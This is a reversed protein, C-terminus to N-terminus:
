EILNLKDETNLYLVNSGLMFVKKCFCSVVGDVPHVIEVNVYSGLPADTYTIIGDKIYIDENYTLDITKSVDAATMSFLIINGNGVGGNDGCGSLYTAKGLPRPSSVVQQLGTSDRYDLEQNWINKYNNEFDIVDSNGDQELIWAFQLFGDVAFIKYQNNNPAGRVKEYFQPALNRETVKNKFDTWSQIEVNVM